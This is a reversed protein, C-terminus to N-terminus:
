VVIGTSSPKIHIFKPLIFHLRQLVVLCIYHDVLPSNSPFKESPGACFVKAQILLEEVFIELNVQFQGGIIGKKFNKINSTRKLDMLSRYTEKLYYQVDQVKKYPIDRPRVKQRLIDLYLRARSVFEIPNIEDSAADILWSVMLGKTLAFDAIEFSESEKAPLRFKKM